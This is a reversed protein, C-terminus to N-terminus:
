SFYMVKINEYAMVLLKSFGFGLFLAPLTILERKWDLVGLKRLLYWTLPLTLLITFGIVYLAGNLGFIKYMPVVAAFLVVLQLLKMPVSMKPRGVAVYCQEALITRSGLISVSLIQIMPGAASYRSDYLLEILIYGANFFLGCLFLTAIDFPFSFKYYSKQLDEPAERHVKSFVPLAVASAWKSFVDQIAIILFIAISYIGLMAPTILAGLILKDANRVFFGMITTLLIWKGFHFLERVIKGDWVFKNLAGPLFLYGAIIHAVTQMMSGIVLAWVSKYVMAFGIMILIGILQTSLEIITLRSVLMHRSASAKKMSEFGGILGVFSLVFLIAPLSKDAYVSEVPVMGIANAWYLGASIAVAGLWIFAGRVVQFTWAADLFSQDDGRPSQVVNHELGMYSCLWLGLIVTNAVAMVGFMEPVLLRTMILNNALRLFQGSFQGFFVWISSKVVHRRGLNNDSM